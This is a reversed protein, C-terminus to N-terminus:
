PLTVGLEAAIRTLQQRAPHEAPLTPGLVAHAALLTTRSEEQRGARNLSVALNIRILAVDVPGLDQAGDAVEIAATFRAVSDVFRGALGLVRGAMDHLGALQKASGPEAAPLRRVQDDLVALAESWKKERVLVDALGLSPDTLLSPPGEREDYRSLAGRFAQAAVPLDGTAVLAEGKRTLFALVDAQFPPPLELVIPEVGAIAALAESGKGRLLLAPVLAQIARAAPQALRESRAKALAQEFRQTAEDLSGKAQLSRGEQLLAECSGPELAPAPSGDPTRAVMGAARGGERAEVGTAAPLAKAPPPAALYGAVHVVTGAVVLIALAAVTLRDPPPSIEVRGAATAVARRWVSRLAAGIGLGAVSVALLLHLERPATVPVTLLSLAALIIALIIRDPKSSSTPPREPSTSTLDM